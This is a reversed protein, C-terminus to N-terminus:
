ASLDLFRSISFRILKPGVLPTVAKIYLTDADYQTQKSWTEMTTNGNSM